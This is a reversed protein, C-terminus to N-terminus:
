KYGLQHAMEVVAPLFEGQDKRWPLPGELYSEAVKKPKFYPSSLFNPDNGFNAGWPGFCAYPSDEPHLMAEYAEESWSVGWFRCLKEFYLKTDALLDEGRLRIQKEPPITELFRM